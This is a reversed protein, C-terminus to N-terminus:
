QPNNKIYKIKKIKDSYCVTKSYNNRHKKVFYEVNNFNASLDIRNKIPPIITQEPKIPLPTFISVVGVTLFSFRNISSYIMDIFNSKDIFDAKDNHEIKDIIKKDLNQVTRV